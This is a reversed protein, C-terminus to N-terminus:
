SEWRSPMASRLLRPLLPDRLLRLLLFTALTPLVLGMGVLIWLQNWGLYLGVLLVLYHLFYIFMTVLGLSPPLAPVKSRLIALFVALVFGVALPPFEPPAIPSLGVLKLSLAAEAVRLLALGGVILWLSRARPLGEFGRRQLRDAILYGFAAYPFELLLGNRYANLPLDLPTFFDM